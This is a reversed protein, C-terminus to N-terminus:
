LLKTPRLTWPDVVSEGEELTLLIEDLQLQRQGTSLVLGSHMANSVKPKRECVGIASRNLQVHQLGFLSSYRHLRGPLGPAM